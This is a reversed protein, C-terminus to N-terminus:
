DVRAELAEKLQEQQAVFLRKKEAYTKMAKSNDLAVQAAKMGAEKKGHGTLYVGVTFLPLKTESDKRV